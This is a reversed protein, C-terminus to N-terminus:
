NQNTTESGAQRKSPHNKKIIEIISSAPYSFNLKVLCGNTNVKVAQAMATIQPDQNQNLSALALWGQIIQMVSAAMQETKAKLAMKGTINNNEEWLGIGFGEATKLINAQAPIIENESINGLGIALIMEPHSPILTPLPNAPTINAKKGDLVDLTQTINEKKNAIILTNDKYFCGWHIKNIEGSNDDVWKHIAYPGYSVKEYSDNAKIIVLAREPNFNGNIIATSSEPSLSCGYVTLSNIDHLPDFSFIAKFAELKAKIEEKEAEGLIFQGLSSTRLSEMDLHILWKASADIHSLNLPGANAIFVTIASIIFCLFLKKKM